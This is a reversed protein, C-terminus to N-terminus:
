RSARTHSTALHANHQALEDYLRGNRIGNWVVIGGVVLPVVAWAYGVAAIGAAAGAVRLARRPAARGTWAVYLGGIMATGLAYTM